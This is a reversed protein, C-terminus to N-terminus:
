CNWASEEQSDRALPYRKRLESFRDPPGEADIKKAQRIKEATRRYKKLLQRLLEEYAFPDNKKAEKIQEELHQCGNAGIVGFARRMEEELFEELNEDRIEYPARSPLARDEVMIRLIDPIVITHIITRSM